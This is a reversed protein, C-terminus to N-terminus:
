RQGSEWLRIRENTGHTILTKGDPTFALLNTVASDTRIALVELDSETDWFRLVGEGSASVLRKGDPSFAIQWIFGANGPYTKLLKGNILDWIKIMGDAGGTAFTKGERDFAVSLIPKPQKGFDAVMQGTSSDFLKATSDFSAAFIRTNDHSIGVRSVRDDFEHIRRRLKGTKPDWMMVLNDFGGSVVYNGDPSFAITSGSVIRDSKRSHARFRLKESADAPDWIVIEGDSNLTALSRGDGSFSGANIIENSFHLKPKASKVDYIAQHTKTNSRDGTAITSGDETVAAWQQSFGTEAGFSFTEFLEPRNYLHADFDTSGSALYDDKPSFAVSWVDSSHTKVTGLEVGSEADFFGISRDSSASAIVRGDRSFGIDNIRAKHAPIDNELKMSASDYVEIRSENKGLAIKKGDPSYAVALYSGVTKNIFTLKASEIDYLTASNGHGSLIKKGDPSFELDHTEVPRTQFLPLKIKQFEEGTKANWLRIVGDRGGTAITKGDPSYAIARVRGTHGRLSILEKGNSADWIKVSASGSDGSATLLFADDPSFEAKWINTERIATKTVLRGSPVEFIRAFGDSCSTVLRDGSRSFAVHWVESPHSFTAVRAKPNALNDLFDYEWGRFAYTRYRDLIQKVRIINATEYSQMALNMDSSYAQRQFERAQQGSVRAFWISSGLLVLGLVAALCVSAFSLRNRSVFKRFKYIKSPPKALVPLDNQYRGIDETFQEVTQYRDKVDKELAKLIITDLDGKLRKADVPEIVNSPSNEEGGSFGSKNSQVTLHPKEPVEESITRIIEALPKNQLDHPRSGTLMEYLIVGLSYVDSATTIPEGKLQEPSAYNPTMIKTTLTTETVPEFPKPQLMKAIGFDLLKPSGGETVLINTPKLDRHIVLNQHAFKVAGCVELFLDLRKSLSLSNGSLYKALSKGKVYEMVLYPTGDPTAGADLLRAIAPHELRALIQRERRFNDTDAESRSFPSILKIAVQQRFEDDREGLFVTGMGGQGIPTKLRYKGIKRGLFNSSLYNEYVGFAEEAVPTEMFDEISVAANLMSEVEKRFDLDNGCLLALLGSRKGTPADFIEEFADVVRKKYKLDSEKM